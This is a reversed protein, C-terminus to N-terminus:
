VNGLIPIDFHATNFVALMFSSKQGPIDWQFDYNRNGDTGMCASGSNPSRTKRWM